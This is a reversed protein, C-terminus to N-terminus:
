LGMAELIQPTLLNEQSYDSYYVFYQIWATDEWRELLQPRNSVSSTEVRPLKRSLGEQVSVTTSSDAKCDSWVLWVWIGGPLGLLAWGSSSGEWRGGEKTSPFSSCVDFVGHVESQGRGWFSSFQM